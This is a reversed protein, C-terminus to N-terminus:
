ASRVHRASAAKAPPDAATSTDARSNIPGTPFDQAALDMPGVAWSITCTLEEVARMTGPKMLFVVESTDLGTWESLAILLKTSNDVDSWM